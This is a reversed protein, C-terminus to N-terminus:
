ACPLVHSAITQNWNFNDYLLSHQPLAELRLDNWPLARSRPFVGENLACQRGDIFVRYSGETM